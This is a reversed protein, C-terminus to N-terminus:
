LDTARHRSDTERQSKENKDGAMFSPLYYSIEKKNSMM